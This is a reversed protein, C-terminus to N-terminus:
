TTGPKLLDKRAKPNMDRTVTLLLFCGLIHYEVSPVWMGGDVVLLVLLNIDM